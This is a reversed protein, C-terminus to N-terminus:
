HASSNMVWDFSQGAASAATEKYLYTGKKGCGEVGVNTGSGLPTITLSEKPCSLDFAARTALDQMQFWGGAPGWHFRASKGCGLVTQTEADGFASTKLQSKPCGLSSSAADRVMADRDVVCAYATLAFALSLSSYSRTM